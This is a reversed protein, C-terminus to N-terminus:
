MTCRSRPHWCAHWATRIGDVQHGLDAVPPSRDIKQDAHPVTLMGLTPRLRPLSHSLRRPKAPPPDQSTMCTWPCGGNPIRTVQMQTARGTHLGRSQILPVRL